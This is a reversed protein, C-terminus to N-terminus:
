TKWRLTKEKVPNKFPRGEETASNWERKAQFYWSGPLGSDKVIMSLKPQFKLGVQQKQAIALDQGLFEKAVTDIFPKLLWKLGPITWYSTHNLESSTEDIPTVTTISAVITRGFLTIYETRCSPMRFAIETEMYDGLLKFILSGKSPSHKVITWGNGTPVYQKVKEKLIKSNRWWWSKHVYPVHAPDILAVVAYDMHTPVIAKTVTQDYPLGDLGHARPVEPSEGKVEGYYIWINGDLEVCPYSRTKIKCVNIKQDDCLSPIDICLGRDDFKWGHFACSVQEGDFEGFSLPVGQHPCIDRLAFIAGNSKRGILILDGLLALSVTKGKQVHESPLAYYWINNVWSSAVLAPHEIRATIADLLHPESSDSLIPLFGDSESLNSTKSGIPVSSSPIV